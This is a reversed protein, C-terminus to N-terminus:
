KDTEGKKPSSSSSIFWDPKKCLHHRDSNSQEVADDRGGNEEDHEIAREQERQIGEEAFNTVLMALFLNLVVFKGIVLLFIFYAASAWGTGRIGSYMVTHWDEGTLVQMVYVSLM